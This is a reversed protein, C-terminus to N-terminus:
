WRNAKRRAVDLASECVQQESRNLKAEAMFAALAAEAKLALTAVDSM